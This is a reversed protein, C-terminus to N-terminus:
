VGKVPCGAVSGGQCWIEEISNHLSWGAQKTGSGFKPGLAAGQLLLEVVFGAWCDLLLVLVLALVLVLTLLWKRSGNEGDRARQPRKMWIIAGALGLLIPMKLFLLVLIGVDELFSRPRATTPGAKYITVRVRAGIDNEAREIGCWYTDTDGETVNEMTVTFTQYRPSDRIVVTGKNGGSKSTRIIIKCSRWEAGRCWLKRNREWDPNYQCSVKLSKGETSTVTQPGWLERSVNIMVPVGLVAREAGIRCWYTDTDGAALNEMTVTFTDNDPSDSISVYGNREEREHGSTSVVPQCNGWPAGRCWSKENVRYHQEYRCHVLHSQGENIRVVKPSSIDTSVNLRLQAGLDNEARQIGCWYTDTDGATINEMTVTFTQNGPSDRISVRGNDREPGPTRVINKCSQWEAGRCWRKGNREWGPDYQCMVM